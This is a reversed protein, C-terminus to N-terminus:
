ENEAEKTLKTLAKRQEARVEDRSMDETCGGPRDCDKGHYGFEDLLPCGQWDDAGIVESRIREILQKRDAQILQMLRNLNITVIHETRRDELTYPEFTVTAEKFIKDRLDSDKTTSSKTM